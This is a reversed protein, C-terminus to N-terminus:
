SLASPRQGDGHLTAIGLSRCGRNHHSSADDVLGETVARTYHWIARGNRADLAFADNASTVFMVGNLVVPTAELSNSNKSHFVWQARLSSITKLLLKLCAAIAGALTIATTPRGIRDAPLQDASRGSLREPRGRFFYEPRSLCPNFVGLNLHQQHTSACSRQKMLTSQHDKRRKRQCCTQAPLRSSLLSERGASGTMPQIAAATLVRWVDGSLLANLLHRVLRNKVDHFLANWCGSHWSEARQQIVALYM